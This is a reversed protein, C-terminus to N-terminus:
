ADEQTLPFSESRLPKRYRSWPTGMASTARWGAAGPPLEGAPMPELMGAETLEDFAARTRPHIIEPRAFTVRHDRSMPMGFLCYALVEADRSIQATM